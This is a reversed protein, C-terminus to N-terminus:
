ASEQSKVLNLAKTRQDEHFVQVAEGTPAEGTITVEPVHDKDKPAFLVFRKGTEDVVQVGDEHGGMVHGDFEVGDIKVHVPQGIQFQNGQADRDKAM